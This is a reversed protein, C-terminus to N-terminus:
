VTSILYSVYKFILFSLKQEIIFTWQWHDRPVHYIKWNTIDHTCVTHHVNPIYEHKKFLLIILVFIICEYMWVYFKAVVSFNLLM